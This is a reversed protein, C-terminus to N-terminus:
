STVESKIFTDGFDEDYVSLTFAGVLFAGFVCGPRDALFILEGFTGWKWGLIKTGVM